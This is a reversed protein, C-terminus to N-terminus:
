DNNEVFAKFQKMWKMSMKKLLSPFLKFMLKPMFHHFTIYDVESAYLTKDSWLDKFVTHQTNTMHKHVYLGKKEFPFKYLLITEELIM